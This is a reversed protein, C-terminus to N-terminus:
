FQIEGVQEFNIDFDSELTALEAEAQDQSGARVGRNCYSRFPCYSCKKPDDTLPFQEAAGIESVLKRLFEWDRKFQAAGYPFRAPETPFDAYWYVMELSDPEFPVAGNLHAGALILLACYVRTQLRVAMWEDRPRKHYTKWDFILAPQGAKVAVLDYKALLRGGDIPVSLTLEPYTTCGDLNPAHALFAQWWRSLDPTSALPTLKEDPLGILHQQVLRHFLRGERQRHENELVPESEVGPWQMQELYRLQFRRPCDVYDQLSSQSFTFPTPLTAKLNPM